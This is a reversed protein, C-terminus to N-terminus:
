LSRFAIKRKRHTESQDQNRDNDRHIRQGPARPAEAFDAGTSVMRAGCLSRGILKLSTEPTAPPALMALRRVTSIARPAGVMRIPGFPAPLVVRILSAIPRAAGDDPRMSQAPLSAGRPSLNAMINWRGTM